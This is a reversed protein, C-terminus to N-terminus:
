RPTAPPPPPPSEFGLMAFTTPVPEEGSRALRDGAERCIRQAQGLCGAMLARLEEWGREDLAAPMVSLHRDTRADFTDALMAGDARAILDQLGTLSLEQRSQKSMREFEEDSYFAPKMGRYVHETAGRRQCTDVVSICGARDLARFHYSVYSLAQQQDKFSLGDPWMEGDVFRVPSIERANAVELIRVRLPHRLPASATPGCSEDVRSWKKTTEM